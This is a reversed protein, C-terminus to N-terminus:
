TLFLSGALLDVVIALYRARMQGLQPNKMPKEIEFGSLPQLSLAM